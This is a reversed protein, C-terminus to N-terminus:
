VAALPNLWSVESFRAFDTDASCVTLGHEVALAALQADTMLNGSVQYRRVLQGLVQVHQATPQPIWVVECALWDEVRRWATGPDLPDTTARPNTILRFFAGLSHWPLGVRRSGNLQEELWAAARPGFPSREDVAFLLINADVLV